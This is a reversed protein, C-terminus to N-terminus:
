RAVTVKERRHEFDREPLDFPFELSNDSGDEFLVENIFNITSFEDMRQPLCNEPMNSAPKRLGSFQMELIKTEHMKTEFSGFTGSRPSDERLGSFSNSV